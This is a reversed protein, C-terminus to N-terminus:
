SQITHRGPMELDCESCDAWVKLKGNSSSKSGYALEKSGCDTCTHEPEPNSDVYDLIYDRAETKSRFKRKKLRYDGSFTEVVIQAIWKRDASVMGDRYAPNEIVRAVISTNRNRYKYKSQKDWGKTTRSM